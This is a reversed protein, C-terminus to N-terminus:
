AQISFGYALLFDRYGPLYRRDCVFGRAMERRIHASCPSSNWFKQRLLQDYIQAAADKIDKAPRLGVPGAENLTGTSPDTGPIDYTQVDQPNSELEELVLGLDDLLDTDFLIGTKALFCERIMWRLTINSLSTDVDDEHSGGGIDAHCGPLIIFTMSLWTVDIM